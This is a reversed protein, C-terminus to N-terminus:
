RNNSDTEKERGLKLLVSIGRQSPIFVHTHKAAARVVHFLVLRVLMLFSSIYIDFVRSNAFLLSSVIVYSRRYHQGEDQRIRKTNSEKELGSAGRLSMLRHKVKAVKNITTGWGVHLWRRRRRRRRRLREEGWRLINANHDTLTSIPSVSKFPTLRIRQQFIRSFGVLSKLRMLYIMAESKM